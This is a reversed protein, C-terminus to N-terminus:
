KAELAAKVAKGLADGRLSTGIVKGDKGILITFPISNVDHLQAIEAQWYKGDFVHRWSMGKEKITSVLKEKDNERDLSIGLIEFGQTHYATYAELVHPLEAMCPGCWTAWFDILLVKGKYDAPSVDKGDMDKTTFPVPDSGPKLNAAAQKAAAIKGAKTNPYLKVVEALAAAYAEKDDRKTRRVQTAKNMMVTAKDDDTKASAEIEAMLKDAAENDRLGQRLANVMEFREDISKAKALANETFMKQQDALNSTKAVMAARVASTMDLQSVDIAVLAAKVAAEDKKIGAIQAVELYAKTAEASKPFQKAFAEIETQREKLLADRKDNDGRQLGRMRNMHKAELEKWAAAAGGQEQAAAAVPAAAAAPAPTQAAVGACISSLLVLVQLSRM